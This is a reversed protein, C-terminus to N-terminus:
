LSQLVAYFWKYQDDHPHDYELDEVDMFPMSLNLLNANGYSATKEIHLKKYENEKISM